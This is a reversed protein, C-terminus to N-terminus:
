HPAKVLSITRELSPAGEVETLPIACVSDPLHNVSVPAITIGYGSAVLSLAWDDNTVSARISLQAFLKSQNLLQQFADKYSCHAREIWDCEILSELAITRSRPSPSALPHGQPVLLYYPESLITQPTTIGSTNSPSPESRHQVTGAAESTLWYNAESQDPTLQWHLDHTHSKLTTMCQTLAHTHISPSVYLLETRTPSQQMEEQIFRAHQLLAKARSYLAQGSDTPTVGKRSRILLTTEFEQELQAIAHTISPQSVHCAEAAATIAGLEVAQVFYNLARLDM